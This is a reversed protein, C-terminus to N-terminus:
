EEEPHEIFNELVYSLEDADEYRETCYDVIFQIEEEDLFDELNLEYLKSVCKLVLQLFKQDKKIKSSMYKIQEVYDDNLKVASIAIKTIQNLEKEAIRIM